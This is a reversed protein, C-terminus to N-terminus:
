RVAFELINKSLISSWHALREPSLSKVKQYNIDLTKHPVFNQLYFRNAKGILEGMNLIEVDTLLDEMLTSRFEYEVGSNKIINISRRILATNFKVGTVKEYRNLPAKIDMALYDVLKNGILFELMEPNTGNTDLKVLYGLGKIQDIMQHLDLHLTPEGGTISVADLKGQRTRLFNLLYEQPITETFLQPNVLEPNHCYPCRFNCGQTFVIACIKGPYDILSFRQIAGIRM